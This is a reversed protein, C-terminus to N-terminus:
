RIQYYFFDLRVFPCMKKLQFFLGWIWCLAVVARRGFLYFFLKYFGHWSFFGHINTKIQRANVFYDNIHSKSHVYSIIYGSWGSWFSFLLFIFLALCVLLPRGGSNTPANKRWVPCSVASGISLQWGGSIRWWKVNEEVARHPLRILILSELLLICLFMAVLQLRKVRYNKSRIAFSKSGFDLIIVVLFKFLPHSVLSPRSIFSKPIM